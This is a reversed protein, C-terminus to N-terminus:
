NGEQMQLANVIIVVCSMLGSIMTLVINFETDSLMVTVTILFQAIGLLFAFLPVRKISLLVDFAMLLIWILLTELM